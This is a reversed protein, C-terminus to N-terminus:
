DLGSTVVGSAVVAEVAARDEAVSAAALGVVRRAPGGAAVTLHAPEEEYTRALLPLVSGALAGVRPPGDEIAAVAGLLGAVAPEGAGPPEAAVPGADTEGASAVPLLDEWLEARWAHRFSLARLCLKTAPDEVVPVWGGVVEFLRREVARYRAHRAAAAEFADFAVTGDGAPPKPSM